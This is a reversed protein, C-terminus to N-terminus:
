RLLSAIMNANDILHNIKDTGIIVSDAKTTKFVANLCEKVTLKSKLHGSLLAKKIVVGKNNNKAKEIVEGEDKYHINYSIMLVDVEDIESVFLGGELSMTSVGIAQIIGKQKLQTLQEIADTSQLTSLDNKPCHLFVLDLCDGKLYKLSQEISKKIHSASFDYLSQKGDFIEGVKTSIVFDNRNNLKALSEGIRKEASGYAPAVDIYNIGMEQAKSLLNQLEKNNILQYGDGSPYKVKQNRGIKFAGLAM